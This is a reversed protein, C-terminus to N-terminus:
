GFDHMTRVLEPWAPPVYGTLQRFRTSDLSRDIMLKDDATIENTRGYTHAVLKLLEYKTIPDASVHYLGHIQPLPLVHDRIVRALEVTPLGSFVARTFGRVPGTQAL